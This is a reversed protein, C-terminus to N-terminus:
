KKVEIEMNELTQIERGIRVFDENPMGRIWASTLRMKAEYIGQPDFDKVKM